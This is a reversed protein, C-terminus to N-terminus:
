KKTAAIVKGTTINYRDGDLLVNMTLNAGGIHGRDDTEISMSMRADYVVVCSNGLVDCTNDPNVIIATSEDIGIGVLKPHELVVSILRNHRKRRVFHQDIIANEVFGIGEITKINDKLISVFANSSDKNVLEDGTIMVKSMIAAGASTGGIVAGNRYLEKLKQQFPTGVIIATLRSQDGGSFFVGTVGNLKEAFAANAAQARAFLLAEVNKVGMSKLEETQERAVTDPISSAMPIIVVRAKEAGGALAVFREMIRETRDGGGIIVLHGKVAQSLSVVPAVFLLSMALFLLSRKHYDM